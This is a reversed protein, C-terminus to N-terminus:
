APRPPLAANGTAGNDLKWLLREGTDSGRAHSPGNWQEFDMGASTVADSHVSWKSSYPAQVADLDDGPKHFMTEPPVSHNSFEGDFSVTNWRENTMRHAARFELGTDRWRWRVTWGRAYLSGDTPPLVAADPLTIGWPEFYRAFATELAATHPPQREFAWDTEALLMGNSLTTVLCAIRRVHRAVDPSALLLVALRETEISLEPLHTGIPRNHLIVYVDFTLPQVRGLDAGGPHDDGDARGWRALRAYQAPTALQATCALAQILASFADKDTAPVRGPRSDATRKVEAVVPIRDATALLMDLRVATGSHSAGDTTRTAVLERDLYECALSSFSVRRLGLEAVREDSVSGPRVPPGPALGGADRVRLALDITSAAKVDGVDYHKRSTYFGQDHPSYTTLAAVSDAFRKILPAPDAVLGRALALKHERSVGPRHLEDYLEVIPTSPITQTMGAVM